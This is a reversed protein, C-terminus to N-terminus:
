LEDDDSHTDSESPGLDEVNQVRRRARSKFRQALSFDFSMSTNLLADGFAEFLQSASANDVMWLYLNELNEQINEHDTLIMKIDQDSLSRTLTSILLHVDRQIGPILSKLVEKSLCASLCRGRIGGEFSISKWTKVDFLTLCHIASLIIKENMDHACEVCRILNLVAMEFAENPLNWTLSSFRLIPAYAQCAGWAQKKTNMRQKWSKADSVQIADALAQNIMHGLKTLFKDSFELYLDMETPIDDSSMIKLNLLSYFHGSTRIANNVM